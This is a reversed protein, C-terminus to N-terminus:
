AQLLGGQNTVQSYAQAVMSKNADGRPPAMQVSYCQPDFYLCSFHALATAIAISAAIALLVVGQKTSM